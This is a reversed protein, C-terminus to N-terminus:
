FLYFYKIFNLKTEINKTLLLIVYYEKAFEEVILLESTDLALRTKSM